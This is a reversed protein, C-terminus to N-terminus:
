ESKDELAKIRDELNGLEQMDKSHQMLSNVARLRVTPSKSDLLQILAKVAKDMYALLTCGSIEIVRSRRRSLEKKFVDQGLYRYLTSRGIGSMEAAEQIGKATLLANIAKTQRATLKNVKQGM